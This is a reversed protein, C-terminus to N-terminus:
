GMIQGTEGVGTQPQLVDDPSGDDLRDTIAPLVRGPM